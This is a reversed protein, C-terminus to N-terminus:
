IQCFSPQLRLNSLIIAAIESKPLFLNCSTQSLSSFPQNAHFIKGSDNNTFYRLAPEEFQLTDQQLGGIVQGYGNYSWCFYLIMCKIGKRRANPQTM